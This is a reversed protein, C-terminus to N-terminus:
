PSRGRAEAGREVVERVTITGVWDCAAPGSPMGGRGEEETLLQGVVRRGAQGSAGAVLHM